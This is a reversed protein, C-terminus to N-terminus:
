RPSDDRTKAPDPVIKIYVESPPMLYLEKRAIIELYKIDHLKIKEEKLNRIRDIKMKQETRVTRIGRELSITNQYNLFVLYATVYFIIGLLIASYAIRYPRSDLSRFKKRKIASKKIERNM